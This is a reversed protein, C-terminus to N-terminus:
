EVLSASIKSQYGSGGLSDTKTDIYYKGNMKGLGTIKICQGAVIDPRGMTTFTISTSGHNANEIEAELKLKADALSDAKTNVKLLRKGSGKKYTLDKGTKSSTYTITGGTYTGALTTNFTISDMDTRTFSAVAAKKKYKGRDFIVLKKRFIKISYGYSKCLETLFASDTANSQEQTAINVDTADFTLSLKYRKAITQAVKKMTVKEWTQTRQTATFADSAPASVAGITISNGASGSMTYSVDDVTYTGCSLKQTQGEKDRHLFSITAKITDGKTPFWSKLWEMDRDLLTVSISDSEGSAPDTYEFATQYDGLTTTINKGNYTTIATARRTKQESSAVGLGSGPRTRTRTTM